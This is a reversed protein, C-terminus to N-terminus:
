ARGDPTWRFRIKGLRWFTGLDAPGAAFGISMQRGRANYSLFYTGNSSIAPTTVVETVPENPEDTVYLTPVITPAGVQVFDPILTDSFAFDAGEAMDFEGSQWSWNMVSGNADVGQEHQQLLGSTDAGIPSGMPSRGCWASRQYQASQGYDWANEVINYKVYAFGIVTWFHWAIENFDENVACHTQPAQLTVINNRVFDIVPCELPTVGGGLDYRFFSLQPAMWMVSTGIIGAARTAILGAGKAIPQISFVLPFGIYTVAWLGIDTWVLGGSVGVALGGVLTSGSSLFFSGAQNTATATWATINGADCWRLLLPQQTGGTEAGLSMIIQAGSIVFVSVSYLPANSVVAAPAITPPNWYYIGGNTPSAILYAGFHDLSWQRLNVLGSSSGTQSGGYDGGGYDGAGYGQALAVVASGTPLLYAIQANGSNEYFSTGSTASSAVTIDFNNTDVLTVSYPQGATITVGGGTVTVGPTYVSGTSYGHNPLTVKVVASSNTTTYQAVVGGNTVTGTANATATVQYQTSSVSATVQQYGQLVLGGVSVFTKLNIWDGASPSYSSDTITVIPQGNTTSFAVAPNETQAVPTIDSLVGSTLVQLRQETGVALCANGVIDAWGHMGRATGILTTAVLQVWGGLKQAVGGYFRILNSAALNFANATPSLVTNVGPRLTLTKFPM